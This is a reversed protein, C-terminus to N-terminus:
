KSSSFSFRCMDNLINPPVVPAPNFESKGKNWVFILNTLETVKSVHGSGFRRWDVGALNWQLGAMLASVARHLGHLHVAPHPVSRKLTGEWVSHCPEAWRWECGCLWQWLLFGWCSSLWCGVQELLLCLCLVASFASGSCTQRTEAVNAFVCSEEPKVISM